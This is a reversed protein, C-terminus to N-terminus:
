SVVNQPRGKAFAEINSLTAGIIRDVADQTNYAIHPTVVVNPFRLLVHNAVLAKLDYNDISTADRFIQAEERIAPEQPLVDLGAAKLTGNALARVMSPIDVLNGRATNILVAEPKMLAFERDSLMGLTQPTAPLHLSIVDATALLEDLGCYRFGLHKALSRDENQDFALAEMSFGKAIEIARRGIRGTGLVGFTRSHLDFGRLASQSFNGRRTREAAELVHRSIALLLAFVHEAVTVDGYDPVNCVTIGHARCFNLDIHDFGTSRTAILKLKPLKALVVADLKSGVFPSVIECDAYATATEENLPDRTCTLAHLSQLSLCAAHEWQEAEFVAINM